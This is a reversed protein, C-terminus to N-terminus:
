TDPSRYAGARWDHGIRSHHARHPRASAPHSGLPHPPRCPLTSSHIKAAVSSGIHRPHARAHTAPEELTGVKSLFFLFPLAFAVGVCRGLQRHGYEMWYIFKFDKLEMDSPLYTLPCSTPPPPPHSPHRSTDHRTTGHEKERRSLDSRHLVRFEPSARYKDFEKNWEEATSPPRQGLLKWDTQKPPPRATLPFASSHARAAAKGLRLPPRKETKALNSKGVMSLGSKTLRTLGGVVVM